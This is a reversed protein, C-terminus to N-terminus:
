DSYKQPPPFLLPPAAVITWKRAIVLKCQHSKQSSSPVFSDGDPDLISTLSARCVLSPSLLDLISFSSILKSQGVM